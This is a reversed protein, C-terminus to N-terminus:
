PLVRSLLNTLEKVTKKLEETLGEGFDTEKPQIALLAVKAGTTKTIYESFLNLPLSHTSVPIGMIDNPKILKTSGPKLNLLAADIILVHTPNFEIIPEIYSEPITECEILYNHKSVKKRLNKVVEVGVFDDKRLSNGIGAVVVRNANSLWLQLSEEINQVNTSM